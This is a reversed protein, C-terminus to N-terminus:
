HGIKGFKEEVRKRAEPYLSKDVIRDYTPKNAAKVTGGKVLSDLQSMVQSKPVGDNNVWYGVAQYHKVANLAVGFEDGTSKAASTAVAVVDAPSPSSMMSQTLIWAELFRVIGERNNAIAKKSALLMTYQMSKELAEPTAIHLWKHGTKFEVQALEDIHFVATKVQGAIAAKVLPANAVNITTIDHLSLGCTGLLARLYLWRANNIGDAAVTKGKLDKCDHVTPDASGVFFDTNPMGGVAIVPAGAAILNLAPGAASLGISVDGTVVARSVDVGRQFWRYTTDLGVAKFFGMNQALDAYTNSFIPPRGVGSVNLKIDAARVPRPAFLSLAPLVLMARLLWKRQGCGWQTLARM